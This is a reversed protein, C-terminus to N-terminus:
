KPMKKQCHDIKLTRTNNVIQYNTEDQNTIECPILYSHLYQQYETM